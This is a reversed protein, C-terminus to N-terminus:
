YSFLNKGHYFSLNKNRQLTIYSKNRRKLHPFCKYNKVCIYSECQNNISTMEVTCAVHESPCEENIAYRREEGTM